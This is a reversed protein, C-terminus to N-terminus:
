LTETYLSGRRNNLIGFVGGEPAQYGIGDEQDVVDDGVVGVEGDEEELVLLNIQEEHMWRHDLVTRAGKPVIVQKVLDRAKQVAAKRQGRTNSARYSSWAAQLGLRCKFSDPTHFAIILPYSQMDNGNIDTSNKDEVCDIGGGGSDVFQQPRHHTYTAHVYIGVGGRAGDRKLVVPSTWGNVSKVEILSSQSKFIKSLTIETATAYIENNFCVNIVLGDIIQMAVERLKVDSSTSSSSKTGTGSGTGTGSSMPNFNNLFNKWRKQTENFMETKLRKHVARPTLLQSTIIPHIDSYVDVCDGEGKSNSSSVTVTADSTSTSASTSSSTSTTENNLAIKIDCCINSIADVAPKQISLARSLIM